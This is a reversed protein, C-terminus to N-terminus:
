YRSSGTKRSLAEAGIEAIQEAIRRIDMESSISANLNITPSFTIGGGGLKSPDKVGIITDDPSFNVAPQGPRMLFDDKDVSGNDEGGGGLFKPLKELLKDFLDKIWNVFTNKFTGKLEDLNKKFDIIWGGITEGFLKKIIWEKVKSLGDSLKDKWEILVRGIIMGLQIAAGGIALALALLIKGTGKLVEESTIFSVIKDFINVIGDAIPGANEEILIVIKDFIDTLIESFETDGLFTTKFAEVVDSVFESFSLDGTLLGAASTAVKSAFEGLKILVKKMIPILPVFLLALVAGLLKFIPEIIKILGLFISSVFATIGVFKVVQKLSNLIKNSERSRKKGEEVEKGNGNGKAPSKGGNFKLNNLAKMIESM